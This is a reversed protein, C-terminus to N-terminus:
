GGSPEGSDVREMAALVARPVPAAELFTARTEDDLTAAQQLLLAHARELAARAASGDGLAEWVQGVLWWEEVSPRENQDPAEVFDQFRILAEHAAERDGRALYTRARLALIASYGVDEGEAYAREAQELLGLAQDTDCRALACAAIGKWILPRNTRVNGEEQIQLARRYAEEAEDIRGLAFLTDGRCFHIHAELARDSIVQILGLAQDYCRLAEEYQGVAHKLIGLSTLSHADLALDGTQPILRRAEQQLALARGYEGMQHYLMSLNNCAIAQHWPADLDRWFALAAEMHERAAELRSQNLDVIGLTGLCLAERRPDGIKQSLRIGEECCARARRYGGLRLHCMAEIRLADACLGLKGQSRALRQAAQADAIGQRFRATRMAWEARRRLVEGQRVPDDLARALDWLTALDEAQATRQALQNYARERGSLARYRTVLDDVPILALARSFFRIAAEQAHRSQMVEGARLLYYVAKERDSSEAYHHALAEIVQEERGAYVRELAAAVQNHLVQRVAAPIQQYVVQRILPHAFDYRPSEREPQARVLGRTLWISLAEDVRYSADAVAEQLLDRRFPEGVVAALDLLRRAPSPLRDVRGLIMEQVSHPVPFEATVRREDSSSSTAVEKLWTSDIQWHGAEQHLVGRDALDRLREILMFPNGQSEWHLYTALPSVQESPLGPLSAILKRVIEPPLPNLSLVAVQDDQGLDRRLLLFPHGPEMEEHRYAGLFWVPERALRALLYRLMDVTDRDAWHLDDLFVVVTQSALSSLFRAIAEFLRQRPDIDKEASVLPPLEPYLTRLEPLLRSLEMLWIPALDPTPVPPSPDSGMGVREAQRRAELLLLYGRLADIFPQYPISSGFQHCRGRLILAGRGAVYRLAEEALRTKGIGAEGTILTLKGRRRRVDEWHALLWAHERGRGIFPLTHLTHPVQHAVATSTDTAIALTEPRPSTRIREYLATTEPLPEIDLEQRLIQRCREYQALADARRGALAYCFILQRHGWESWPALALLRQLVTIAEEYEGRAAHIEGLHHLVQLIREQFYAREGLMWTEFEPADELFIGELFDGRYLQMCTTLQDLVHQPIRDRSAARRISQQAEKLAHEFVELDLWYASQRNFSVDHRTVLLYPCHEGKQTPCLIQRINWLARRLSRAARARGQNGWLLDALMERRHPGPRVVLYTLLALTKTTELHVIQGKLRLEPGGLFRMYFTPDM